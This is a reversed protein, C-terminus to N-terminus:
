GGVLASLDSALAAPDFSAGLYVRERGQKDILFVGGTHPAPQSTDPFSADRESELHYAKWIPDLQERSGLLFRLRGAMGHAQAFQKAADPTDNAPDVSIGVWAVEGAKAGLQGAAAHLKQATLPCVDPCHTYMFALAVPKGRLGALTVGAGNQDTLAFAPAPVGGLDAGALAHPQSWGKIVGYLAVILVVAAIAAAVSVRSITRQSM